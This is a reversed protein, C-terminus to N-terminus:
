DNDRLQGKAIKLGWQAKEHHPDLELAQEFARIADKIHGAKGLFGGLNSYFVPNPAIRLAAQTMEIGAALDGREASIRGLLALSNPLLPDLALAQKLAQSAEGGRGLEMLAQGLGEHYKPVEAFERVLREFMCLAGSLNGENAVACAEAYTQEAANLDRGPPLELDTILYERGDSWIEIRARVFPGIEGYAHAVEQRLITADWGSVTRARELRRAFATDLDTLAVAAHSSPTQPMLEQTLPLWQVPRHAAALCPRQLLHACHARPHRTDLLAGRYDEPWLWIM